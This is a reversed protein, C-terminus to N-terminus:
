KATERNRQSAAQINELENKVPSMTLIKDRASHIKRATPSHQSGESLQSVKKPVEAM